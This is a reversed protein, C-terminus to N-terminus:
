GVSKRDGRDEVDAAILLDEAGAGVQPLDLPAEALLVTMEAKGLLDGAELAQEAPNLCQGEHRDRLDAPGGHAAPEFERQGAVQADGGLICPEAKGFHRDAEDGTGAARRAQGPEARFLTTYPFLTDTLTSRPPRRNM